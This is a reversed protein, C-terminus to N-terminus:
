HMKWFSQFNKFEFFTNLVLNIELDILCFCSCAFSCFCVNFGEKVYHCFMVHYLVNHFVLRWVYYHGRMVCWTGVGCSISVTHIHYYILMNVGDKRLPITGCEFAVIYKILTYYQKIGKIRLNMLVTSNWFLSILWLCPFHIDSAHPFKM